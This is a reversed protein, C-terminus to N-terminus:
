RQTDADTGFVLGAIQDAASEEVAPIAHMYVDQTFASTAHGLRDSMVKADVGAALGLTAHTHRLDHLRIKPLELRKVTRDFTQSFYDPHVPAGDERAFVLDHDNYGAGLLAKERQQERGHRQLVRVTEPDLAIKREGRKTKPRGFTLKYEVSLVTQQVHLRRATFDLDRWRVGLVEGRRMGTTAALVYAAALRHHAIGDFFERLQEPTWTKMEDRDARNLKPPDAADAVNRPVLNKRVADRLARHILVHINRVTKSALGRDVLLAYFRDLHDPSLQQIQVHGLEPIVHREVLGRYSAYTSPRVAMERAPLWRETLFEGLTVKSPERFVGGQIAALTETLFEQAEKKTRFGGKTHQKRGQASDTRWFVTWTSGRRYIGGRQSM